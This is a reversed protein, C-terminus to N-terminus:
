ISLILNGLVILALSGKRRASKLPYRLFFLSLRLSLSGHLTRFFSAEQLKFSVTKIFIIRYWVKQGLHSIRVAAYIAELGVLLVLGLVIDHVEHFGDTFMQTIGECLDKANVLKDNVTTPINLLVNQRICNETDKAMTVDIVHSTGTMRRCPQAIGAAPLLIRTPVKPVIDLSVGGIVRWVAAIEIPVLLDYLSIDIRHELLLLILRVFEPHLNANIFAAFSPVPVPQDADSSTSPRSGSARLVQQTWFAKHTFTPVAPGTLSFMAATACSAISLPPSQGDSNVDLEAVM